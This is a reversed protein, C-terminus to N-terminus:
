RGTDDEPPREAARLSEFWGVVAREYAIGFDLAAVSLPRADPASPIEKRQAEYTALREAHVAHHRDLIAHM